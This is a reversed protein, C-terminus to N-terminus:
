SPPFVTRSDRPQPREQIRENAKYLCKLPSLPLKDSQPTPPDQVTFMEQVTCGYKEVLIEYEKKLQLHPTTWTDPDHVLQNPFWLNQEDPSLSGVLGLFRSSMAVKASTQAITNPTM